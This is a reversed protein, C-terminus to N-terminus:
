MLATRGENDYENIDYDKRAQLMWELMQEHGLLAV